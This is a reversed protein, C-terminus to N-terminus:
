RKKSKNIKRKYIFAMTILLMTLVISFSNFTTSTTTDSESTILSTSEETTSNDLSVKIQVQNSYLGTGLGNVAKIAYYYNNNEIVVDDVYTLQDTSGIETLNENDDGRYIIYNLIKTGGNNLPAQWILKVKNNQISATLDRPLSPESYGDVVRISQWINNNERILYWNLDFYIHNPVGTSIPLLVNVTQTTSNVWVQYDVSNGNDFTITIPVLMVMPPLDRYQYITVSTNWNEDLIDPVFRASSIYYDPPEGMSNVYQDFLWSLELNSSDELANVFNNIDVTKYIYADYFAEVAKFFLEDGMISRILGIFLSAKTYVINGYNEPYLEWYSMNYRLAEDDGDELFTLYNNKINKLMDNAFNAGKYEEFYLLSSYSAWGEDFWPNKWPNNGILYMNWVHSWEHAIVSEFGEYGAISPDYFGPNIMILQNYEMGGFWGPVAVIIGTEYPYPEFLNSFLDLANSSITLADSGRQAHEPFYYSYITMNEHELTAVEYNPSAVWTFDRIPGTRVFHLRMNDIDITSLKDGGVAIVQDNPATINVNYYAMDSYFSEGYLIFPNKNWEGSEFVSLVPHFNGFAHVLNPTTSYGFRDEINPLNTTFQINITYRNEPHVVIPLSVKLNVTEEINSSLISNNEDVIQHIEIGNVLYGNPWLHLYIEHISENETNLYSINTWGSVSHSDPFFTI